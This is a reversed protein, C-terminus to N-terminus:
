ALLRYRLAGDIPVGGRPPPRRRVPLIALKTRDEDIGLIHPDMYDFLLNVIDEFESPDYSEPLPRFFGTAAKM